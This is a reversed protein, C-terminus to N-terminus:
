FVQKNAEAVNTEGCGHPVSFHEIRTGRLREMFAILSYCSKVGDRQKRNLGTFRVAEM